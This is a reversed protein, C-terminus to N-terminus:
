DASLVAPASNTGVLASLSNNWAVHGDNYLVNGGADKHPAINATAGNWKAGKTYSATTMGAGMRDLALISDPQDQWIIFPCYAYSINSNASGVTLHTTDLPYSATLKRSSDSPCTFIKASTITNSLLNFSAGINPTSLNDLPVRGNYNDAYMAIGLGIQKLNSLCNARRAKERAQNLAPLLMAALIGIIAIVVLLEILTFGSIKIRTLRRM